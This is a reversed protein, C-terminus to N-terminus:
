EAPDLALIDSRLASWLQGAFTDAEREAGQRFDSLATNGLRGLWRVIASERVAIRYDRVALTTAGDTRDSVSYTLTAGDEQFPRRLPSRIMREVLPPFMWDPERRFRASFGAEDRLRTLSVDAMLRRVGVRFLLVKASFDVQAHLASPIPRPPGDLPALSGGAVRFRIVLRDNAAQAEWWPAGEDDYVLVRYAVPSAYKELYRAYLPFERELREVHMTAAITVGTAGDGDPTTRMSDLTFLRGLAATTRPLEARYTARIAPERSRELGQFAATVARRLDRTRVAGIALEDRVHWEYEADGLTRLTTLRRYEGTLRPEPVGADVRLRYVGDDPGGAVELTRTGAGVGNASTWL